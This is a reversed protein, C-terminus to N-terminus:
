GLRASAGGDVVLNHGTIHASEDSALFLAAYAVHEPGGPRLLAPTSEALPQPDLDGLDGALAPELRATNPGLRTTISGPSIANCRINHERYEAAVQRTLGILGAKSSAYAAYGKFGFMGQLSAINVISGRGRRLMHPIAARCALHASALNVEMVRQWRAPDTEVVSGGIAIGACNVLVDIGGFARMTEDIVRGAHEERSVDAEVFLAGSGHLARACEEGAPSDRDAITVSAGESAFLLCIAKGIGNAGGTVIAARGSLRM